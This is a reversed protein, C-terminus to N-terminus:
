LLLWLPGKTALLEWANEAHTKGSLTKHAEGPASEGGSFFFVAGGGQDGLEGFKLYTTAIKMKITMM